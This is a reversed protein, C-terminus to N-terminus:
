RRSGVFFGFIVLGSIIATAATLVIGVIPRYQLKVHIGDDLVLASSNLAMSLLLVCCALFITLMGPFLIAVLFTLFIGVSTVIKAIHAWSGRLILERYTNASDRMFSLYYRPGLKYERLHTGQSSFDCIIKFGAKRMRYCYEGDEHVLLKENFFGVNEVAKMSVINCGNGVKYATHPGGPATFANYLLGARRRANRNDWPLSAMGVSSDKFAGLLRNITDEPAVIDSDLFFVFETGAAERFVENRARPISSKVINVRISEYEVQHAQRFDDLIKLTGDTSENDVFCLRTAGKPYTFRLISEL